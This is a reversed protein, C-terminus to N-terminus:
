VPLYAPVVRGARLDLLVLAIFGGILMLIVKDLIDTQTKMSKIVQQPIVAIVAPAGGQQYLYQLQSFLEARDGWDGQQQQQQFTENFTSFPVPQPAERIKAPKQSHRQGWVEAINAYQLASM